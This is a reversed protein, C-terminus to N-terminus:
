SIYLPCKMFTLERERAQLFCGTVCNLFRYRVLTRVCVMWAMYNLVLIQEKEWPGQTVAKMRQLLFVCVVCNIGLWFCHVARHGLNITSYNHRGRFLVKVKINVAQGETWNWAWRVLVKWNGKWCLNLLSWCWRPIRNLCLNEDLLGPLLVSIRDIILQWSISFSGSLGCVM